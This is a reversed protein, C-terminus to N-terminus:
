RIEYSAIDRYMKTLDKHQATFIRNTSDLGIMEFTSGLNPMALPHMELPTGTLYNVPPLTFDNKMSGDILPPPPM